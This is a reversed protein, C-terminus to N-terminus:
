QYVNPVYMIIECTDFILWTEQKTYTHKGCHLSHWEREESIEIGEQEEHDKINM